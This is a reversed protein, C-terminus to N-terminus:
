GHCNFFIKIISQTILSYDGYEATNEKRKLMSYMSQVLKRSYSICQFLLIMIISFNLLM